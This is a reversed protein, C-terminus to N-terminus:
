EQTDGTRAASLRVPNAGRNQHDNPTHHREVANAWPSPARFWRLMEFSGAPSLLHITHCRGLELRDARCALAPRADDMAEASREVGMHVEVAADDVANQGGGAAKKSASPISM